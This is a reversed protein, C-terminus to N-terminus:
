SRYVTKNKDRIPTFTETIQKMSSTFYFTLMSLTSTLQFKLAFDSFWWESHAGEHIVWCNSSKKKYFQM